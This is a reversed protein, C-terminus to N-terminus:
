FDNSNLNKKLKELALRIRSKVTGLPLKEENAIVIHTKDEYFAKRILAAQEAPLSAVAKHLLASQQQLSFIDDTAPLTADIQDPMADIDSMPRHRRLYDIRRNRAISFIWTSPAAKAPDFLNAKSWITIMVDQTLEEAIDDTVSGIGLLYSKVRPAFYEFLKIYAQRDKHRAIRILCESHIDTTKATATMKQKEASMDASGLRSKQPNMVFFHVGIDPQPLPNEIKNARIIM